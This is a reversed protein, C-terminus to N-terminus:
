KADILAKTYEEIEKKPRVGYIGHCNNGGRSFMVLPIKTISLKSTWDYKKDVDIKLVHIRGRNNTMVEDIIPEMMKAPGSWEAFFFLILPTEVDLVNEQWDADIVPLPICKALDFRPVSTTTPISTATGQLTLEGGADVTPMLTETVPSALTSVALTAQVQAAVTADVDITPEAAPSNNCGTVTLVLVVSLVMLRIRSTHKM